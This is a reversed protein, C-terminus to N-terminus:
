PAVEISAELHPRIAGELRGSATALQMALRHDAEWGMPNSKMRERAADIAALAETLVELRIANM